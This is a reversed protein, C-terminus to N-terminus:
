ILPAPPNVKLVEPENRGDDAYVHRTAGPERSHLEGEMKLKALQPVAALIRELRDPDWTGHFELSSLPLGAMAAVLAERPDVDRLEPIHENWSWHHFYGGAELIEVNPCRPLLYESHGGPRLHKISPLVLNREAFASEFLKTSKGSVGWDLRELNPMMSLVDAFLHPLEAPPMTDENFTSYESDHVYIDLKLYKADQLAAECDRMERLRDVANTWGLRSVGVKNNDITLNAFLDAPIAKHAAEPAAWLASSKDCLADKVDPYKSLWQRNDELWPHDTDLIFRPITSPAPLGKQLMTQLFRPLKWASSFATLCAFTYFLLSLRMASMSRGAPSVLLYYPAKVQRRAPPHRAV